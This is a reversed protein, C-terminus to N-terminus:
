LGAEANGRTMHRADEENRYLALAPWRAVTFKGLSRKRVDDAVVHAERATRATDSNSRALGSRASCSPRPPHMRPVCHSSRFLAETVASRAWAHRVV